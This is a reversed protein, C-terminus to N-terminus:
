FVYLIGLGFTSYRAELSEIEQWRSKTLSWNVRIKYLTSRGLITAEAMAGPNVMGIGAQYSPFGFTKYYLYSPVVGVGAGLGFRQENFPTSGAGVHLSMYSPAQLFLSLGDNYLSFSVLAGPNALLSVKDNSHWVVYNMGGTLGYFNLVQFNSGGGIAPYRSEETLFQYTFGIDWMMKGNQAKLLGSCALVLSLLAILRARM